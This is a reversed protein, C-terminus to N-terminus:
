RVGHNPPGAVPAQDGSKKTRRAFEQGAAFCVASLTGPIVNASRTPGRLTFQGSFGDWFACRHGSGRRQKGQWYLESAPESALALMADFLRQFGPTRYRGM